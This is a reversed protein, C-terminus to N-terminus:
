IIIANCALNLMEVMAYMNTVTGVQPLENLEFFNICTGCTMIEVGATELQKLIDLVPSNEATLFAGRNIFLIAKPYSDNESLTYIYAKMLTEGLGDSASGYRDGTIQIVLNENIM